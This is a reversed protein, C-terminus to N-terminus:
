APGPAAGILTRTQAVQEPSAAVFHATRTVVTPVTADGDNLLEVFDQAAPDEWINTWTAGAADEGLGLHLMSCFPCGPRWYVAVGGAAVHEAAEAHSATPRPVAPSPGNEPM